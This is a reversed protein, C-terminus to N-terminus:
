KDVAVPVLVSTLVSSRTAGTMCWVGPGGVAGKVRSFGDYLYGERDDGGVCGWVDGRAPYRPPRHLVTYSGM